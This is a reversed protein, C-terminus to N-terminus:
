TTEWGFNTNQATGNALLWVNQKRINIRLLKMKIKKKSDDTHTITTEQGHRAKM